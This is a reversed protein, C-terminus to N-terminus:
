GEVATEDEETDLAQFRLIFQNIRRRNRPTDESFQIGFYKYGPSNSQRINVVTGIIELPIATSPFSILLSEQHNLNAKAEIGCGSESLNRLLGRITEQKDSLDIRLATVFANFDIRIASRLNYFAAQEPPHLTILRTQTDALDLTEVVKCNFNYTGDSTDFKLSIYKLQSLSPSDEIRVQLVLGNQHDFQSIIPGKETIIVVPTNNQRIQKIIGRFEPWKLYRRPPQFSNFFADLYDKGGAMAFAVTENNIRLALYHLPTDFEDNRCITDLSFRDIEIDKNRPIFILETGTLALWGLVMPKAAHLRGCAGLLFHNLELSSVLSKLYQNKLKHSQSTGVQLSPSQWQCLTEALKKFRNTAYEARLTVEDGSLLTIKATKSNYDIQCVENHPILFGQGSFAGFYPNTPVVMLAEDTLVCMVNWEMLGAKYLCEWFFLPISLRKGGYGIAMLFGYLKNANAGTFTHSRTGFKIEVSSGLSLINHSLKVEDIDQLPVGIHSDPKNAYFRLESTTLHITGQIGQSQAPGFLLLENFDVTESDEKNIHQHIAVYIDKLSGRDTQYHIQRPMWVTLKNGDFRVNSISHLPIFDSRLLPPDCHFRLRDGQIVLTGTQSGTSTTRTCHARIKQSPNLM